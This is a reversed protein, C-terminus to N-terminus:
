IIYSLFEKALYLWIYKLCMNYKKCEKDKMFDKKEKLNHFFTHNTLIKMYRGLQVERFFFHKKQLQGTIM